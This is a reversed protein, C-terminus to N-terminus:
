IKYVQNLTKWHNKIFCNNDLSGFINLVFKRWIILVYSQQINKILDSNYIALCMWYFWIDMM